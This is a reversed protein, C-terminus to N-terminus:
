GASGRVHHVYLRLRRLTRSPLRDPDFAHVKSLFGADSLLKQCAHWHDCQRTRGLDVGLTLCVSEIVLKVLHPPKAFAKVESVDRSSVTSLAEFAAASAESWDSAV